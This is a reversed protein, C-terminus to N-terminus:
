TTGVRAGRLAQAAREVDDAETLARVVAIRTAGAARVREVNSTDIGGIAFFPVTAHAAAHRVLALGV